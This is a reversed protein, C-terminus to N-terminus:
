KISFPSHVLEALFMGRWEGRLTSTSFLQIYALQMREILIRMFTQADPETRLSVVIHKLIEPDYYMDFFAFLTTSIKKDKKSLLYVNHADFFTVKDGLYGDTV